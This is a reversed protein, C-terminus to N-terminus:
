KTTSGNLYNNSYRNSDNGSYNRNRYWKTVHGRRGCNFCIVVNRRSGYGNLMMDRLNLKNENCVRLQERLNMSADEKM